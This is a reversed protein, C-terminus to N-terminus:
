ILLEYGLKAACELFGILRRQPQFQQTLLTSDLGRERFGQFTFRGLQNRNEGGHDFSRLLFASFLFCFYYANNRQSTHAAPTQLPPANPVLVKPRPRLTPPPRRLTESFINLSSALQSQANCIRIGVSLTM